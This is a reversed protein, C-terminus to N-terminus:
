IGCILSIMHDKDKKKQRLNTHYDTTADWATAFLMIKNKKHSLLIESHIHLADEKDM